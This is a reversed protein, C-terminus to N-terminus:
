ETEFLHFEDYLKKRKDAEPMMKILSARQGKLMRALYLCGRRADEMFWLIKNNRVQPKHEASSTHLTNYLYYAKSHSTGDKGHNSVMMGSKSRLQDKKGFNGGAFIDNIIQHCINEDASEAWQPLATGLYIACTKTM